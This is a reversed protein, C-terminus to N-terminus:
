NMVPTKMLSVKRPISAPFLVSKPLPLHKLFTDKTYVNQGSVVEDKGILCIHAQKPNSAMIVQAYRILVNAIENASPDSLFADSFYVKKNTFLNMRKFGYKVEDNQIGNLVWNKNVVWKGEVLARFSTLTLKSSVVVHTVNHTYQNQITVNKSQLKRTLLEKTGRSLGSLFVIKPQEKQLSYTHRKKSEKKQPYITESQYKPNTQKMEEQDNPLKKIYKSSRSNKMEKMEKNEKM